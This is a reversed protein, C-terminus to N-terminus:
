SGVRIDVVVDLIAGTPCYVYKAQGPPVLAFHVGRLVGRDSFSHNARALPFTYGTVESLLDARFWEVFRGRSDDHSVLDLLYTDPVALERIDVDRGYGVPDSLSRPERAVAEGHPLLRGADRGAGLPHDVGRRAAARHGSGATRRPEVGDDHQDRRPPPRQRRLGM